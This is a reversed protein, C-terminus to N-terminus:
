WPTKAYVVARRGNALSSKPIAAAMSSPPISFIAAANGSPMSCSRARPFTKFDEFGLAVASAQKKLGPISRKPIVGTNPGLKRNDLTKVRNTYKEVSYEIGADRRWQDLVRANGLSDAWSMGPAPFEQKGEIIALSAADAEFSYVHATENVSM